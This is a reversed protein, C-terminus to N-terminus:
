MRGKGEEREEKGLEIKTCAHSNPRAPTRSEFRRRKQQAEFAPIRNEKENSPGARANSPIAPPNSSSTSAISPGAAANQEQRPVGAALAGRIAVLYDDEARQLVM